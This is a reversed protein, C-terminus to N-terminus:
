CKNERINYPLLGCLPLLFIFLDEIVRLLKDQFYKFFRAKYTMASIQYDRQTIKIQRIEKGSRWDGDFTKEIFQFPAVQPTKEMETINILLTERGRAFRMWPEDFDHLDLIM